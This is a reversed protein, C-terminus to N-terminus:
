TNLEGNKESMKKLTKWGLYLFIGLIAFVFLMALISYFTRLSDQNDQEKEVSAKALDSCAILNEKIISVDDTITNFKTNIENGLRKDNANDEQIDRIMKNIDEQTHNYPLINPVFVNVEKVQIKCYQYEPNSKCVLNHIAILFDEDLTQNFINTITDNVSAQENYPIFVSLSKTVDLANNSTVTINKDYSMNTEGANFIEPTITFTVFTESNAPLSFDSKGFTMWEGSLFLNTATTSGKNTIKLVSDIQNNSNVTFNNGDIFELDLETQILKSNIEIKFTVDDQPNRAYGEGLSDTVIIKGIYNTFKDTYDFVGVTNFVKSNSETPQLEMDFDTGTVSHAISDANSWTIKSGKVITIEQPDFKINTITVNKDEPLVEVDEKTYAIATIDETKQYSSSTSVVIKVLQTSNPSLSFNKDIFTIDSNDTVFQIQHLETTTPNTVNIYINKATNSFLDVKQTTPSIELGASALPILLFLIIILIKYTAM